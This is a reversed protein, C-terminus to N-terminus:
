RKLKSLETFLPSYYKKLPKTAEMFLSDPKRVNGDPLTDLNFSTWQPILSNKASQQIPDVFGAALMLHALSYRDYMWQHVEGALRFQGIKIARAGASGFFLPALV